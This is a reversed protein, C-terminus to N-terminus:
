RQNRNLIHNQTNILTNYITSGMAKIHSLALDINPRRDQSNHCDSGIVFPYNGNLIKKVKKYSWKDLFCGVNFQLVVDDIQILDQIKDESYCDFYRDIHALIPKLKYRFCINYIEDIMWNSFFGYPLEILIYGSNGIALKDLGDLKNLDRILFVESGLMMSINKERCIESILSYSNSRKAVFDDVSDEDCIFHPTAVVKANKDRNNVIDLMKTSEDISKPGDDMGPLIHAHFDIIENKM